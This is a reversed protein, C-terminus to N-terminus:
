EIGFLKRLVKVGLYEVIFKKNFVTKRVVNFSVQGIEVWISYRLL